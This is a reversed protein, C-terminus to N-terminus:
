IWGGSHGRHVTVPHGSNQRATVFSETGQQTAQDPPLQDVFLSELSPLVEAASEGTLGQLAAVILPELKTSIILKRVSPFSHFLELWLTPDMDDPLIDPPLDRDCLHDHNISLEEVSSHLSLIRSCIQSAYFVQWDLRKCLIKWSSIAGSFTPWKHLDPHFVINVYGTPHFELSPSTLRLWELHSLFRVTQPIDFILQNFFGIKFCNLRPADLRAALVELYESVGRFSLKTLAPLLSRTLPPLPRNRRKPHPNPSLFTINFIELKTLASLYIAMDEPPIYANSPLENLDLTTLGASSLLLRPLSPFSVGNLRLVQLRPASGHLFTDPVFLTRDSDTSELYLCKLNPFPGQMVTRIQEWLCDSRSAIMVRCVRDPCKLATILNDLSDVPNWLNYHFYVVLPLAPWINLLKTVPTKATCFIQLKLGLPSQFVVDRWRRCVHVLKEWNVCWKQPNMSRYEDIMAARYFRFIELLVDDPLSGITVRELMLGTGYLDATTATTAKYLEVQDKNFLPGLYHSPFSVIGPGPPGFTTLSPTKLAGTLSQQNYILLYKKITPSISM